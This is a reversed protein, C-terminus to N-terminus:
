LMYLAQLTRLKYHKLVKIFMLPKITDGKFRIKSFETEVLGPNIAGVRIRYQNLDIRM